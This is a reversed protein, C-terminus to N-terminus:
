GNQCTGANEQEDLTLSYAPLCEELFAEVAPLNMEHLARETAARASSFETNGLKLEEVCKLLASLKDAAKVLRREVEDAEGPLMWREYEPRLDSPLLALLREAAGREVQKYAAKLQEDHYKVPTPMDGTLIEPVDHYLALMVCREPSVTGGFRRNQFLALAHALMAVEATHESINEPYTNRMLAWRQIYKMRSLMAYFSTSAM